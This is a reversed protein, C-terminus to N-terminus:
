LIWYSIRMTIDQTDGSYDSLRDKGRWERPLRWEWFHQDGCYAPAGKWPWHPCLRGHLTVPFFQSPLKLYNSCLLRTRYTCNDTRSKTSLITSGVRSNFACNLMSNLKRALTLSHGTETAYLVTCCVRRAMAGHMLRVTFLAARCPLLMACKNDSNKM